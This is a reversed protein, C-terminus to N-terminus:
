NYMYNHMIGTKFPYVLLCIHSQGLFPLSPWSLRPECQPSSVYHACTGPLVRAFLDDGGQMLQDHSSSLMGLPHKPM